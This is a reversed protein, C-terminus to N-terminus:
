QFQRRFGELEQRLEALERRLAATEEELKAIRGSEAPASAAAPEAGAAFTEAPGPGIPGGLLQAYRSEKFGTQRPLKQALPQPSRAALAGLAAEVEALAGFPHLRSARGRLEGMTQPGRLMLECLVAREAPGLELAEALRQGYKAVRNIGGTTVYALKKERLSDMARVIAQEGLTVVPDRNSSQNCANTLANLTLPYYDPTATEKELLSALVRIEVPDLPPIAEPM